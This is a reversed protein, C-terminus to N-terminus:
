GVATVFWMSFIFRMVQSAGVVAGPLLILWQWWSLQSSLQSSDRQDNQFRHREHEAVQQMVRDRFNDPPQVLGERLLAETQDKSTIM